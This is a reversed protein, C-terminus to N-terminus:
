EFNFPSPGYDELYLDDVSKFDYNLKYKQIDEKAKIIDKEEPVLNDTVDIEEISPNQVSGQNEILVKKPFPEGRLFRLYMNIRALAWQGKTECIEPVPAFVNGGARRYVKKLQSLTVKNEYSSNHEEMKETLAEIVKVSFKINEENNLTKLSQEWTLDDESSIDSNGSTTIDFDLKDM